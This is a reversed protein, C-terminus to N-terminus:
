TSGGTIDKKKKFFVVKFKKECVFGCLKKKITYFKLMPLPWKPGIM